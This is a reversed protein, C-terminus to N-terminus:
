ELEFSRAVCIKQVADCDFIKQIKCVPIPKLSQVLIYNELPKSDKYLSFNAQYVNCCKEKGRCLAKWLEYLEDEGDCLAVPKDPDNGYSKYISILGEMCAGDVYILIDNRSFDTEVREIWPTETNEVVVCYSYQMVCLLIGISVFIKKMM